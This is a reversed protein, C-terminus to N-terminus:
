GCRGGSGMGVRGAGTGALHPDMAAQTTEQAYDEGGTNILQDRRDSMTSLGAQAVGRTTMARGCVRALLLAWPAWWADRSSLSWTGCFPGSSVCTRTLPARGCPAPSRVRRTNQPVVTTQWRACRTDTRRKKINLVRLLPRNAALLPLFHCSALM